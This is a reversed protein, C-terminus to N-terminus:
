TSSLLGAYSAPMIIPSLNKDIFPTSTVLQNSITFMILFLGFLSNFIEIRLFSLVSIRYTVGAIYLLSLPFIPLSPTLGRM